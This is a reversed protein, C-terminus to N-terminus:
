REAGATIRDVPLEELVNYYDVLNKFTTRYLEAMEITKDLSIEREGREYSALTRKSINLSRAASEKSFGRLRRHIKFRRGIYKLLYESSSEM